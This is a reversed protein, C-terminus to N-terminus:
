AALIPIADLGAARAPDLDVVGTVGEFDEVCAAVDFNDGGGMDNLDGVGARGGLDSVATATVPETGALLESEALEGGRGGRAIPGSVADEFEPAGCYAPLAIRQYFERAVAEITHFTGEGVFEDRRANLDIKPLRVLKGPKDPITGSSILV